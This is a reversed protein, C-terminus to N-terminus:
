GNFMENITRKTYGMGQLVPLKCLETTVEIKIQVNSLISQDMDDNYIPMTVNNAGSSKFNNLCAIYISRPSHNELDAAPIEFSFKTGNATYNITTM